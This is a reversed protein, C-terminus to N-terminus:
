SMGGPLEDSIDGTPAIKTGDGGLVPVFKAVDGRGGLRQVPGGNGDPTRRRTGMGTGTGTGAGDGSGDGNGDQAGENAEM